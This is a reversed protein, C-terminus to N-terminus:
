KNKTILLNFSLSNRKKLNWEKISDYRLNLLFPYRFKFYYKKKFYINQLKFLVLYM